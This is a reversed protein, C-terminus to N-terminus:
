GVAKVTAGTGAELAAKVTRVIEEPSEAGRAIMEGHVHHMRQRKAPDAKANDCLANIAEATDLIALICAPQATMDNAGQVSAALGM